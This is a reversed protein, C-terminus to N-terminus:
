GEKQGVTPDLRLHRKDTTQRNANRTNHSLPVDYPDVITGNSLAIAVIGISQIDFTVM